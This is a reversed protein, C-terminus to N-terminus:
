SGMAQLWAAGESPLTGLQRARAAWSEVMSQFNAPNYVDEESSFLNDGAYQLVTINSAEFVSGDGPDAMRNIIDCVIWGREDDIVYWKIPFAPMSSGPFSKMTRTIWARIAERGQFRGFLHEVYTADETFLDAFIGWDDEAIARRVESQYHEFAAELEARSWRGM